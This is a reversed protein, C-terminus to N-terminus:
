NRSVLPRNDTALTENEQDCGPAIAGNETEGGRGTTVDDCPATVPMASVHRKGDEERSEALLAGSAEHPLLASPADSAAGARGIGLKAVLDDILSTPIEARIRLFWYNGHPLDIDCKVADKETMVVPFDDGFTIDRPKLTQHDALPHEIVTLGLGRLTAFFRSPNGIAAVAHVTKHSPWEDIAIVKSDALNVWAEAETTMTTTPVGLPTRLPGNVVVFDVERLREPPERLPGAPICLGNGIGRQGDVVAVEVDRPMAYHQLGDDSIVVDLDDLSNLKAIAANRDPDVVMPVGTRAVIMVAEDGVKAPDSLATVVCPYHAGRGGYGRSVVGARFGRAQLASVLAIVLPSKGTGGLSINGVVVTPLVPIGTSRRLWRRRIRTILQFLLSLPTLLRPWRQDDYWARMLMAGANAPLPSAAVPAPAPAPPQDEYQQALMAYSGGSALLEAHTGQEVLQGKDLVLIRDAKEITSLRHAIIFTTRGEIVAELASQILGESESDLASTAEDLVLIPANKLFARAIAIRQREGGSLLIGDDGVITKLREPLREIFPWAYAQQAARTIEAESCGALAGYAINRAVTDNFLTVDQPVVAIHSRLAALRVDQIPIGDVLITGSQPTYFRPILSALTSKGSGSKGVLGVTEGPRVKFSINKLVPQVSGAYGFSVDRFEIEGRIDDPVITGEDEEPPEDFVEFIDSAAALGRQITANVESLQRTPKALLGATTIFAIVKGASMDQLLVPDLVLYVVAALAIAVLFQIVPTSVSSTVVMKLTQQRNYHSVRAFRNREYDAGDFTRVVRYGQVAESAVHTVDGMSNQIRESIRRFRRGAFDVLLAVFPAVLFFVITLRWNLVVLVGLYGIVTLGERILVKVADTAAGAVQTVQYTLKSVLHGFANRDYYSSPLKLLADFLEGRLSFVVATSVYSLFYNGVFTGIGRTIVILIMAAPIITRNLSDGTGLLGEVWSAVSTGSLPDVGNLSDVIYQLLAVFGINSASYILFGFTSLLFTGILPRVYSLLRAYVRGDSVPAAEGQKVPTKNHTAM